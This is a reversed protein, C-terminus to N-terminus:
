PDTQMHLDFSHLVLSHSDSKYLLTLNFAHLFLDNLERDAM